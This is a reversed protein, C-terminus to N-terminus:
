LAAGGAVGADRVQLYLEGEPGPEKKHHKADMCMNLKDQCLAGSLLTFMLLVWMTRCCSAVVPMLKNSGTETDSRRNSM